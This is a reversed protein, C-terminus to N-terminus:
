IVTSRSSGVPYNPEQGQIDMKSSTSSEKVRYYSLLFGKFYFKNTSDDQRTTSIESSMKFLKRQVQSGQGLSGSDTSDSSARVVSKYYHFDERKPLLLLKLCQFLQQRMPNPVVGDRCKYGKTYNKFKCLSVDLVRNLGEIQHLMFFIFVM